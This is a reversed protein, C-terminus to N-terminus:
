ISSTVAIGALAFHERVSELESDQQERLQEETVLMGPM